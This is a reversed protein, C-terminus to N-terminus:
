LAEPKPARAMFHEIAETVTAGDYCVRMVQTTIPMPVGHHAALTAIARSTAVGEATPISRAAGSMTEGRALLVGTKHNRSLPSMCTAILDGLGALGAFTTPEAGLAVGLRTIEALGRTLLSAISNHGLGVGYAMGAALAIVNKAAGALECGLVDTNTYPRLYPTRLAHQLRAARAPDICAIVTAAPQEAAIEAALNPGSLVAIHDAGIAASDAIVESMRAGTTLEIGKALSLVTDAEGLDVATATVRVTQAPVALGVIAAGQTASLDTTATMTAPLQVEPLYQSNRHNTVIDAVIEPRRAVITVDHGADAFIKGVTTGWAGGGVITVTTM